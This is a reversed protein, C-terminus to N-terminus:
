EDGALRSFGTIVEFWKLEAENLDPLCDDPVYGIEGYLMHKITIKQIIM